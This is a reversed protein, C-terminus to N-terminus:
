RKKKIKWDLFLAHCTQVLGSGMGILGVTSVASAVTKLTESEIQDPGGLTEIGFLPGFFLGTGGWLWLPAEREKEQVKKRLQDTKGNDSFDEANVSLCLFFILLYKMRKNYKSENERIGEM